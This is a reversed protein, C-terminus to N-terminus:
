KLSEGRVPVKKYSYWEKVVKEAPKGNPTFGSHYKGGNELYTPWKWWYFGQFWEQDWFSNFIAEYCLVQDDFYVPEGQRHEHPRKWPKPTSTFGVETLLVRKNYKLAVKEIIPLGTNMGDILDRVTVTDKKSLPYYLNLGIYDLEDWFTIQEFEQWWNAAYVIPGHYIQKVKTIMERWEEQHGRTTELLEVGICFLDMGYIEALLAYHRIWHYYHRFFEQWDTETGMKIDGPWGWHPGSLLVHPKLMVGLGLQKAYQAATILSEDNESGPGFSYRFYDPKHPNRLYGFPSLSIWETGLSRLKKLSDFSKRSLYGNYIQYGEHAYCFGKQFGPAKVTQETKKRKRSGVSTHSLHALWARELEEETLGGLQSAPLGAEPWSKYLQLFEAWGFKAVLFEVFSGALPREFLYSEKSYVDPNLLDRLPCVNGTDYFLKAWYRYGNKGWNESFYIGIGDRLAQSTSPTVLLAFVLKADSYFDTGKLEENFIAHIQRKQLNLHSLDTNQTILGKDELSDYLHYEIKDLASIDVKLSKLRRLLRDIRQEQRVALTRIERRPINEGHYIFQYNETEAVPHAGQLHNRTHEYDITWPAGNEQKFFGLIIGQGDRYVGFDGAPFFWRRSRSLFALVNEDSHGTTVSLSLSPEGPNPYVSLDYVDGEELSLLNNISIKSDDIEVPLSRQLKRLLSNSAPTGIISLPLSELDESTVASDPKVMVELWRTQQARSEAYNRYAAVAAPNGTGYVLLVKRIQRMRGRLERKSPWKVNKGDSKRGSEGLHSSQLM